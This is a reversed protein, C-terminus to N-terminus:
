SLAMLMTMASEHCKRRISPSSLALCRQQAVARFGVPHAKSNHFARPTKDFDFLYLNEQRRAAKKGGM